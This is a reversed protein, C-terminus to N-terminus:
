LNIKENLEEWDIMKSEIESNLEQIKDQLDKLKVYDTSIEEQLM